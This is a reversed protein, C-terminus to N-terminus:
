EFHQASLFKLPTILNESIRIGGRGKGMELGDEIGHFDSGGTILLESELALRRLFEMEEAYVLNNYVEIGDLGLIKMGTIIRRLEQHDKSISTPHALVAVGGIRHIEHIANEIPWYSKPVNCEELYRRFADEVNEVYGRELLARAIHPRGITDRAFILVEDIDIAARGEAVLMKNVLDLIEDNRRERRERFSNLQGLFIHDCYDIGYGLLHVDNWDELQVSLEVAPIVNISLTLGAAIGESVGAVSDHDAIAIAGLDLRKALSVLESPTLAGDSYSSHIHLDINM